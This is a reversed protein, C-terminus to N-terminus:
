SLTRRRVPNDHRGMINEMGYVAGVFHSQDIAEKGGTGVVSPPPRLLAEDALPLSFAAILVTPVRRFASFPRATACERLNKTHNAMGAVEHPVVQWM